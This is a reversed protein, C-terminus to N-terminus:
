VEDRDTLCSLAVKGNELFGGRVRIVARILERVKFQALRQILHFPRALAYAVRHPDQAHNVDPDPKLAADRKGAAGDGFPIFVPAGTTCLGNEKASGVLM